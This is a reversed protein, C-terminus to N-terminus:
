VAVTSYLITKLFHIKTCTLECGEEVGLYVIKEARETGIRGALGRGQYHSQFDGAVPLISM